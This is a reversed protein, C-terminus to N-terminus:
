LTKLDYDGIPQIDAKELKITFKQDPYIKETTIGNINEFLIQKFSDQSECKAYHDKDLLTIDENHLGILFLRQQINHKLPDTVDDLTKFDINKIKTLIANALGMNCRTMDYVWDTLWVDLYAKSDKKDDSNDKELPKGESAIADTSSTSGTPLSTANKDFNNSKQKFRFNFLDKMKDNYATLFNSIGLFVREAWLELLPGKIKLIRSSINNIMKDVSGSMM